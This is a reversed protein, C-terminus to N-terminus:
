AGGPAAAIGDCSIARKEPLTDGSAMVGVSEPELPDGPKEMFDVWYVTADRFREAVRPAYGLRGIEAARQDAREPSSFLGLSIANRQDSATVIFLDQVNKARLEDEVEEAAARDAFPPLYVWFGSRIQGGSERLIANIDAMELRSRAVEAVDVQEFPGLTACTPPAPDGGSEPEGAAQAPVDNDLPAPTTATALAPEPAAPSDTESEEQEGVLVLRKGGGEARTVSPAHDAHPAHWARWAFFGLNALVLIMLILRM